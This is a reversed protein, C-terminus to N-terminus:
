LVKMANGGHPLGNPCQWASRAFIRWLNQRSDIRIEGVACFGTDQDLIRCKPDKQRRHDSCCISRPRSTPSSGSILRGALAGRVAAAAVAGDRRRDRPRNDARRLRRPSASTHDRRRAGRGGFRVGLRHDGRSRWDVCLRPKKAPSHDTRCSPPRTARGRRGLSFLMLGNSSISSPEGGLRPQDFNSAGRSLSRHGAAADPLAPRARQRVGFSSTSFVFGFRTPGPPALWRSWSTDPMGDGTISRRRRADHPRYRHRHDSTGLPAAVVNWNRRPSKAIGLTSSTSVPIPRPSSASGSPRLAAQAGRRAGHLTRDSSRAQGQYGSRIALSVLRQAAQRSIGLKRAIEDQTNGAVYHAM